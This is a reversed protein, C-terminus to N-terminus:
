SKNSYWAVLLVVVELHRQGLDAHVEVGVRLGEDVLLDVHLEVGRVDVKGHHTNAIEDVWDYLAVCAMTCIYAAFNITVIETTKSSLTSYKM